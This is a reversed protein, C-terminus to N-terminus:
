RKAHVLKLEFWGVQQGNRIFVIASRWNYRGLPKTATILGTRDDISILDPEPIGNGGFVLYTTGSLRSTILKGDKTHM